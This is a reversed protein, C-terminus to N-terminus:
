EEFIMDDVEQLYKETDFHSEIINKLFEVNVLREDEYLEIKAGEALLADILNSMDQLEDINRLDCAHIYSCNVLSEKIESISKNTAKRIISIYKLENEDKLIKFQIKAM